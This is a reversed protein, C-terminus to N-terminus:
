QAVLGGDVTLAHGTVFSAANSCLWLAGAAIEEPTGMRGMPELNIFQKEVDANRGTVRDIMETHIVGPCIANIRIGQKAYELAATKTLGVVAHKSAVYAPLNPFGILGAVSSMNVIAGAGQKLMQQIEYRMCLWVGKLNIALTRDFNEESCDATTALQGEIGANNFAHDIRGYTKVTLGILREVDASKSVDAQIFLARGGSKEISNALEEGQEKKVDCFAVKAGQAAFALVAAKGIGAAGGTVLAVSNAFQSTM